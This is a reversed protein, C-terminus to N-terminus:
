ARFATITCRDTRDHDVASFEGGRRTGGARCSLYARITCGVASPAGSIGDRIRLPATLRTAVVLIGQNPFTDTSGLLRASGVVVRLVVPGATTPTTDFISDPVARLDTIVGHSSCDRERRIFCARARLLAHGTLSVIGTRLRTNKARWPCVRSRPTGSAIGTWSPAGCM